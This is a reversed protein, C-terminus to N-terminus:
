ELQNQRNETDTLEKLLEKFLLKVAHAAVRMRALKGPRGAAKEDDIHKGLLEGIENGLRCRHIEITVFVRQWM